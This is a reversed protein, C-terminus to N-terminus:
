KKAKTNKTGKPGSRKLEATITLEGGVMQVHVDEVDWESLKTGDDATVTITM